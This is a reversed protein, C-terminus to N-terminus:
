SYRSMPMGLLAANVEHEDGNEDFFVVSELIFDEGIEENNKLEVNFYFSEIESASALFEATINEADIGIEAYDKAYVDTDIDTNTFFGSYTTQMEIYMGKEDFEIDAGYGEFDFPISTEDIVFTYGGFDIAAVDDKSFPYGTPIRVIASMHVEKM